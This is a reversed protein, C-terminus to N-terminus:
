SAGRTNLIMAAVLPHTAGKGISAMMRTTGGLEEGEGKGKGKGKGVPGEEPTSM